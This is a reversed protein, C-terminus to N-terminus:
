TARAYAQHSSSRTLPMLLLTKPKVQVEYKRIRQHTVTITIGDCPYVGTNQVTPRFM